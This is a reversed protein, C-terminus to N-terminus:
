FVKLGNKHPGLDILRNLKMGTRFFRVGHREHIIDIPRTRTLVEHDHFELDKGGSNETAVYVNTSSSRSFHTFWWM